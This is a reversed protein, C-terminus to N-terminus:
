PCDLYGIEEGVPYTSGAQGTVTSCGAPRAGVETEVKETELVYLPSGESVTGGDAVLWEVITGETIAVSAQPIRLAVRM